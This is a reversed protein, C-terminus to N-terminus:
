KKYKSWRNKLILKGQEVFMVHPIKIETANTIYTLISFNTYLNMKLNGM